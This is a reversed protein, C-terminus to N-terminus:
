SRAIIVFNKGMRNMFFNENKSNSTIVLEHKHTPKIIQAEFHSSLKCFFVSKKRKQRRKETDFELLSNSTFSTM